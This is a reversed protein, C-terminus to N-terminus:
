VHIVELQPLYILLGKIKKYGMEKLVNIYTEIQKIDSPTKNATKYDIIWWCNQNFFMRDIRLIEGKSSVIEKETYLFDYDNFIFSLKKSKRLEELYACCTLYDKHTIKSHEKLELAFKFGDTFDTLVKSMIQHFVSGFNLTKENALTYNVQFNSYGGDSLTYLQKKTTKIEREYKELLGDFFRNENENFCEHLKIANILLDSVGKKKSKGSFHIFLHDVARTFAVYYLNLDDLIKMQEEKEYLSKMDLATLLKKNMKAIFYDFENQDVKVGDVWIFPQNLNSKTSWIGKPMIVVPFELGKSKHITLIQIANNNNNDVSIKKSEDWIVDLFRHISYKKSVVFQFYQDNFCDIFADKINLNLFSLIFELKHYDRLSRYYSFDINLISESNSAVEGKLVCLHHHFLKLDDKSGFEFYTLGHYLLKFQTSYFLYISDESIYPLDLRNLANAIELGDKSSRILITIDSYSYGVDIISKISSELYDKLSIDNFNVDVSGKDKRYTLQKSRHFVDKVNDIEFLTQVESFIANNFNIVSTTSRWNTDLYGQEFGFEFLTEYEVRNELSPLKPLDMFQQADGERWRYIAQKADGVILNEGGNSISEHIMPVLNHWQLMSTDQFEDVLIHNFRSGIREFIFGAPENNIIDSILTNFDSILIINQETKLEKLKSYLSNVMLFPVFLKISERYRVYVKLHDLLNYICPTAVQLFTNVSVQETKSLSKKFLKNDDVWSAYQIIFEIDVEILNEKLKILKSLRNYTSWKELIHYQSISQNIQNIQHIIEDHLDNMKTSLSRRINQLFNQDYYKIKQQNLILIKELQNLQKEIDTKLGQKISDDIINYVLQLFKEDDSSEDIFKSVAGSLFEKEDLIIEYSPLLDLEKSFANIITNTFRDITMVNFDSYNHIIKSYISKCKLKLSEVHISIDKSILPLMDSSDVDNIMLQLEHLIRDKMEQAAKNTFTIALVEKFTYPSESNLLITLYHKVLTFTKGSGASSRYVKLQKM